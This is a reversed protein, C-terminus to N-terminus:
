NVCLQFLLKSEWFVCLWVCLSHPLPECYLLIEFVEEGDCNGDLERRGGGWGVGRGMGGKVLVLTM